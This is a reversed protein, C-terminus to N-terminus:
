ESTFKEFEKQHDLKSKKRLMQYRAASADELVDDSLIKNIKYNIKKEM